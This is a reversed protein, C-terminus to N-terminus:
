KIDQLIVLAKIIKMVIKRNEYNLKKFEEIYSKCNSISLSDKIFGNHAKKQDTLDLLYDISVDFYKSLLILVDVPVKDPCNEIRSITQQSVGIEQAMEVQKLRKENRLERIRSKKIIEKNM